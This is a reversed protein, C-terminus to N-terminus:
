DSGEFSNGFPLSVEGGVDRMFQPRRESRYRAYRLFARDLRAIRFTRCEFGNGGGSEVRRAEDAIERQECAGAAGLLEFALRDIDAVGDRADGALVGNSLSRRADIELRSRNEGFGILTADRLDNAIEEVIGDPVCTGRYADGHVGFTVESGDDDVIVAGAHRALYSAANEISEYAGAIASSAPKAECNATPDSLSVATVDAELAGRTEDNSDRSQLM